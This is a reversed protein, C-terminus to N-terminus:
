QPKEVPESVDLEREGLPATSITSPPKRKAPRKPLLTVFDLIRGACLGRPNDVHIAFCEGGVVDGALTRGLIM